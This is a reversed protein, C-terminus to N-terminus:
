EGCNCNGECGGEGCGGGCGGDGCGGDGHGHGGCNGKCHGCGHHALEGHLGEALEQETAERVEVIKGSFNLTKGAMPSNVDIKVWLESVELVIGPVVRGHGDMLPVTSGIKMLDERLVGDVEFAAKPLEIIKDERREGYGEEPSLSFAFTEGPELGAINEEFKPLLSGTGQIFDLPREETCQDVLQGDVILEYTLYVVKKDEIKM